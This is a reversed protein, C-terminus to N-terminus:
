VVGEGNYWDRRKALLIFTDSKQALPLTRDMINLEQFHQMFEELMANLKANSEASLMAGLMLLRDENQLPKRIYNTALHEMFYRQIPGGTLWRFNAHVNLQYHNNPLLTIIRMKDLQLLAKEVKAEPFGYYNILENFSLQSLVGVAILLTPIDAVLQKEQAETIQSIQKSSANMMNVLDSMNCGLHNLIAMLRDLRMDGRSFLRKISGESLDLWESVDKYTKDQQKLLKKLASIVQKETM